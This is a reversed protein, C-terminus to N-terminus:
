ADSGNNSLVISACSFSWEVNAQEAGREIKASNDIWAEDATALTTGNLDKVTMPGVETNTLLDRAHATSLDRNSTSSQVLTVTFKGSANRSRVRTADGGAGVHLSYAAENREATVFTGDAYGLILLGKWTIVVKQPDYNKLAM